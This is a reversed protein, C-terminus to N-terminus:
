LQAIEEKLRKIKIRTQKDSAKRKELMFYMWACLDKYFSKTSSVSNTDDDIENDTDEDADEDSLEYDAESDRAGEDSVGYYQEDDNADEDHVDHDEEADSVDYYLSLLFKITCRIPGRPRRRIVRLNCESVDYYQEDYSADENRVDHDEEAYIVDYDQEDFSADEDCVDHDEEM